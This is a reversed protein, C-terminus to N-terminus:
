KWHSQTHSKRFYVRQSMCLCLCVYICVWVCLCPHVYNFCGNILNSKWYTQTRHLSPPFCLCSRSHGRWCTLLIMIIQLHFIHHAHHCILIPSRSHGTGRRSTFYMKIIQSWHSPLEYSHLNHIHLIHHFIGKQCQVLILYCCSGGIFTCTIMFTALLRTGAQLETARRKLTWQRGIAGSDGAERQKLVSCQVPPQMLHLTNFHVFCRSKYHPMMYRFYRYKM